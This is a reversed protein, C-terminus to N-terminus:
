KEKRKKKIKEKGEDKKKTAEKEEKEKGTRFFLPHYEGWFQFVQGVCFEYM